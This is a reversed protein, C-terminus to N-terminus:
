HAERMDCSCEELHFGVQTVDQIVAYIHRMHAMTRGTISGNALLRTEELQELSWERCVGPNTDQDMTSTSTDDGTGPARIASCNFVAEKISLVAIQNCVMERWKMRTM